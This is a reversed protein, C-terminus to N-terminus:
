RFILSTTLLSDFFLIDCFPYPLILLKLIFSAAFGNIYLLYTSLILNLGTKSCDAIDTRIKLSSKNTCHYIRKATLEFTVPESGREVVLRESSIFLCIDQRKPRSITIPVKILGWSESFEFYDSFPIRQFYLFGEFYSFLM